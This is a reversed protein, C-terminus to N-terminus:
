QAPRGRGPGGAAREPPAPRIGELLSHPDLGFRAAFARIAGPKDPMGPFHVLFHQQAGAGDVYHYPRCNFERYDLRVVAGELGRSVIHHVIADQDGHTFLGFRAPDWWAEVATLDTAMVEELMRRADDCRRLLFQGASLWTWGGQPNVPSRCAVLFTAPAVGALWRDLPISPDTIFADDDLWFVWDSDRREFAAILARIKHFHPTPLPRYSRDDFVYSYGHRRAYVEHNLHSQLLRPNAGSLMLIRPLGM